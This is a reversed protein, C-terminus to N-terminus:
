SPRVSQNVAMLMPAGVMAAAKTFALQSLHLLREGAERLSHGQEVCRDFDDESCVSAELLLVLRALEPTM